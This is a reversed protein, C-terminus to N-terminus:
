WFIVKKKNSCICFMCFKRIQKKYVKTFLSFWFRLFILALIYKREFKSPIQSSISVGMKVGTYNSKKGFSNMQIKFSFNKIIKLLGIKWKIFGEIHLKDKLFILELFNWLFFNYLIQENKIWSLFIFSLYVQLLPITRIVLQIQKKESELIKYVITRIIIDSINLFSMINLFLSFCLMM